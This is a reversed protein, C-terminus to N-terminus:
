PRMPSPDPASLARYERSSHGARGHGQRASPNSSFSGSSNRVARQRSLRTSSRSDPDSESGATDASQLDHGQINECSGRYLGWAAGFVRFPLLVAGVLIFTVIVVWILRELRRIDNAAPSDVSLPLLVADNAASGDYQAEHRESTRFREAPVDSGHPYRDGSCCICLSCPTTLESTAPGAPPCSESSGSVVM